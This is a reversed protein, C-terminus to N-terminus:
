PQDSEKAGELSSSFALIENDSMDEMDDQLGGDEVTSLERSSSADLSHRQFTSIYNPDGNLQVLSTDNLNGTSL